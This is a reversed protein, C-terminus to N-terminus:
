GTAAASVVIVNRTSRRTRYDAALDTEGREHAVALGAADISLVSQASSRWTAEATVDRTTGDSMRATATFKATGGPPVTGPGTVEFSMVSLINAPQSPFNPTGGPDCAAMGGTLAAAIGARAM